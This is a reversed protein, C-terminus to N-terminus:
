VAIVSRLSQDTFHLQILHLDVGGIGGLAGVGIVVVDRAKLIPLLHPPVIVHTAPQQSVPPILAMGVAFAKRFVALLYFHRKIRAVCVFGQVASEEGLARAETTNGALYWRDKAM